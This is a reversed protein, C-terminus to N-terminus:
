GAVEVFATTTISPLKRIDPSLTRRRTNEASSSSTTTGGPGDNAVHRPFFLQGLRLGPELATEAVTKTLFVRPPTVEDEDGDSDDDDGADDDDQEDHVRKRYTGFHGAAM